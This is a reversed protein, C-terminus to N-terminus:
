KGLLYDAKLILVCSPGHTIRSDLVMQVAEALPVAHRRILETGELTTPGFDLGRALFLRTPSVVVSTFPDCIGLDIWERATIGLEEQLERRATALPDEDPEIGGSVVEITTRGVGYHFEETLHVMGREDLPLVSVGSKLRVICHSGPTGDPRIVEDRSLDIWADRYVERRSIIQWPGRRQPFPM